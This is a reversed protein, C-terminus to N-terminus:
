SVAIALCRFTTAWDNGSGRGQDDLEREAAPMLLLHEPGSVTSSFLM